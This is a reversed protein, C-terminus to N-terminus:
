LRRTPPVACDFESKGGLFLVKMLVLAKALYLMIPKGVFYRGDKEIIQGSLRLRDLRAAVIMKANYAVLIEELTMGQEDASYLEILLRIRRASEGLNFFGFFYCYVLCFYSVVWLMAYGITDWLSVPLMQVRFMWIAEGIFFMGTLFSYVAAKLRFLGPQLRTLLVHALVCAALALFPALAFVM